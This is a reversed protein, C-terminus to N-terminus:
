ETGSDKCHFGSAYYGQLAREVLEINIGKFERHREGAEFLMASVANSAAEAPDLRKQLDNWFSDDIIKALIDAPVRLNRDLGLSKCLALAEGM